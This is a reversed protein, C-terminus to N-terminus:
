TDIQSALLESVYLALGERVVLRRRGIKVSQINGHMVLDFTRTRGLRLLEAAEEVTLLVSPGLDRDRREAPVESV